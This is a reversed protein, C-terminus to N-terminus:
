LRRLRLLNQLTRNAPWTGCGATLLLKASITSHNSEAPFVDKGCSALPSGTHPKRHARFMRTRVRLRLTAEAVKQVLGGVVVPDVHEAYHQHIRNGSWAIGCKATQKRKEVLTVLSNEDVTSGLCGARMARIAILLYRMSHKFINVGNKM